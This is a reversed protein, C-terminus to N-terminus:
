ELVVDWGEPIGDEGIVNWTANKNKVFTGSSAVGTVWSGTYSASPTTLFLAKIYNLSSCNFFMTYYCNTKLNEAPLEPAKVLSTCGLFMNSYCYDALTTAPLSPPNVLSVCGKFMYGYCNNILNIAPLQPVSKLSSCVTFMGYYCYEALTTAPLKPAEKLSKCRIFMEYYCRRSLSMAPLVPANILSTCDDFMKEYCANSLVLAQLKLSSADELATCDNFLGLFAYDYGELSYADKANDGFLLSMCNGKARFKKNATFRGIGYTDEPTLNGRLYMKQGKNIAVTKNSYHVSKWTVGGDISYQPQDQGSKTIQFGDELAEFTLYMAEMPDEEEKGSASMLRRRFVSM